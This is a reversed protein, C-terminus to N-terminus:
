SLCVTDVTMILVGRSWSVPAAAREAYPGSSPCAGCMVVGSGDPGDMIGILSEM